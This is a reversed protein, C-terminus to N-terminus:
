DHVIYRRSPDRRACVVTTDAGATPCARVKASDAPLMVWRVVHTFRQPAPQAASNWRLRALTNRVAVAFLPHSSTDIRFTSVDPRGDSTVRVTYAVLGEVEQSQLMAPYVPPSLVTPRVPVVSPACGFLIFGAATILRVGVM